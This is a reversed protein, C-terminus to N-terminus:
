GFDARILWIPGALRISIFSRAGIKWLVILLLPFLVSFQEDLSLSWTHLLPKFEAAESWYSSELWFWFNSGFGLMSLASGAFEEVAKPLMFLWAFPLCALLITLLMPLIRRARREYFGRITFRNEQMERLIILTILYGSIVFFIEIGMFGGQVPDHGLINFQAHWGVAGLVAICRLGDIEPRYDVTSM